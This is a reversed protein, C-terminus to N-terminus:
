DSTTVSTDAARGSHAPMKSILALFDRKDGPSLRDLMEQKKHISNDGNDTAPKLVSL